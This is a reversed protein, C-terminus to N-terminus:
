RRTMGSEPFFVFKWEEYTTALAFSSYRDPFEDKKLPTGPANSYVGFLERAPGNIVQWPGGTMPDSYADRLHRRVFSARPDRVLDRIEMPYAGSTDARVYSEIGRRIANGKRLLAIEKNRQSITTWMQGVSALYIGLLAVCVLVGIIGVGHARRGRMAHRRQASGRHM